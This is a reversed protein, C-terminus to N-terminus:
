ELIYITVWRASWDGEDLDEFGLDIDNGKIAGGVDEAKGYGYGPIYMKTHLPIVRPDVAVIGKTLYEGTATYHDCGYCTHDYSTAWVKLTKTYRLTEGDIKITYVPQKTGRVIIQREPESVIKKAIVRESVPKNNVLTIESVIEAQGAKGAQLVDKKGLELKASYRFEVPPPLPIYTVEKRTTSHTVRVITTDTITDGTNSSVTDHATPHLGQERIFSELDLTSTLVTHPKESRNFLTVTHPAVLVNQYRQQPQWEVLPLVTSAQTNDVWLWVFTLLLVSAFFVIGAQLRKVYVAHM